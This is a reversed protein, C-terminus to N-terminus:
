TRSNEYRSTVPSISITAVVRAEPSRSQGQYHPYRHLLRASFDYLDLSTEQWADIAIWQDGSTLHKPWLVGLILNICLQVPISATRVSIWWSSTTVPMWRVSKWQTVVNRFDFFRRLWFVTTPTRLLNVKLLRFTVHKMYPILGYRATFV